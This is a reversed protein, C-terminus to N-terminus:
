ESGEERWYSVWRRTRDSLEILLSVEPPDGEFIADNVQREIVKARQWSEHPGYGMDVEVYKPLTVPTDNSM